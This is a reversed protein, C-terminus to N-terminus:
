AASGVRYIGVGETTEVHVFATCAPRLLDLFPGLEIENHAVLDRFYRHGVRHDLLINHAVLLGGPRLRPLAAEAIPEYVRKGLMREDPGTKPGEADLVMLDFADGDAGDMFEIADRCLVEVNADLGLARLNTAALASVEPDVDLLVAYELSPAAAALAWAAWYGYYSGLFAVRRPKAIAAVAYLLQAEEPFIFTKRDAHDWRTTVLDGTTAFGAVDYETVPLVGADVCDRLARAVVDGARWHLRASLACENETLPLTAGQALVADLTMTYSTRDVLGAAWRDFEPVGALGCRIRDSATGFTRL